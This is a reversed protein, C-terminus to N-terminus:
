GGVTYGVSQEPHTFVVVTVLVYRLVTDLQLAVWNLKMAVDVTVTVVFRNVLYTIDTALRGGLIRPLKLEAADGSGDMPDCTWPRTELATLSTLEKVPEAKGRTAERGPATVLARLLTLEM